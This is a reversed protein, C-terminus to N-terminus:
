GEESEVVILNTILGTDIDHATAQLMVVEEPDIPCTKLVEGIRALDVAEADNFVGLDIEAMIKVRKM